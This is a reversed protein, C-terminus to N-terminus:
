CPGVHAVLPLSPWQALMALLPCCPGVHVLIGWFSGLMALISWRPGADVYALVSWRPGADGNALMSWFTAGHGVYALVTWFAHALAPSAHAWWAVVSSVCAVMRCGLDVHAFVLRSPSLRTLTPWHM